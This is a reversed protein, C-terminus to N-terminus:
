KYISSYKNYLSVPLNYSINETILSSSIVKIISQLDQFFEQCYYIDDKSVTHLLFNIGALEAHWDETGFSFNVFGM